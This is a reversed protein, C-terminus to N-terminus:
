YYSYEHTYTKHQINYKLFKLSLELEDYSKEFIVEIDTDIISYFEKEIIDSYLENLKIENGGTYFVALDPKYIDSFTLLKTLHDSIM